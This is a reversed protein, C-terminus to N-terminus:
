KDLRCYLSRLVHRGTVYGAAWAWAVVAPVVPLAEGALAPDWFFIKDIAGAWFM